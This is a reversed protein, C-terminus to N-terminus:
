SKRANMTGKTFGQLIATRLAPNFYRMGKPFNPITDGQKAVEKGINYADIVNMPPTVGLKAQLGAKLASINVPGPFNGAKGKKILSGLRYSKSGSVQERLIRLINKIDM